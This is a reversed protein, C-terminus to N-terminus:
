SEILPSHGKAQYLLSELIVANTNINISRNAGLSTDEYRGAFYGRQRDGLTQVERQLRQAYSSEPFLASWAFAAKTSLTRLDPRAIARATSALWPEGNAYVSYYLFYPARDLSDENVATLIGTRQFRNEQAQLINSAQKEIEDPWGIELGWLVYPDSTLANLAGSNQWNRRDIQLQIDEVVVSEVPPSYLANVAEIGWRQLSHAAYQEYGLRGEQWTQEGQSSEGSGMLWGEEELRDLNYRNVVSQIRDRYAPYHTRLMDLSILYRAIDLASWGSRGQPDPQNDLSRM